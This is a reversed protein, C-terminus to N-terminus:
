ARISRGIIEGRRTVSVARVDLIRNTLDEETELLVPVYERTYGTLMSRGDVATREEFLVSVTEGVFSQAYATRQEKDIGQL